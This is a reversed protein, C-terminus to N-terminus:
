CRDLSAGQQPPTFVYLTWFGMNIAQTVKALCFMRSYTTQTSANCSLTHKISQYQRTAAKIKQACIAPNWITKCAKCSSLLLFFPLLASRWCFPPAQAPTPRPKMSFQYILEPKTSFSKYITKVVIVLPM